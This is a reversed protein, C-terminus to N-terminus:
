QALLLGVLGEQGRQKGRKAPLGWRVAVLCLLLVAQAGQRWLLWTGSPLKFCKIVERVRLQPSLPVSSSYWLLVTDWQLIQM